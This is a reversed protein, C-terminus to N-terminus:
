RSMTRSHPRLPVPKPTHRIRSPSSTPAAAIGAANPVSAVISSKLVPVSPRSCRRRRPLRRKRTPLVRTRSLPRTTPSISHRSGSLSSSSRGSCASNAVTNCFIRSCISGCPAANECCSISLAAHTPQFSASSSGILSACRSPMRCSSSACLRSSLSSAIIPSNAKMRLVPVQSDPHVQTQQPLGALAAAVADRAADAGQPQTKWAGVLKFFTRHQLTQASGIWVPEDGRQTQVNLPARWLRLAYQEDSASGAHLMLLSEARTDFTAPLVPQQADPLRLNLLQLAQVWGANPQAHWGQAELAKRLTQLDGAYQVDLPWRQPNSLEGRQTPLQTWDWNWWTDLWAIAFTQPPDFRQLTAEASRPAHWLAALAFAAYFLWAMPKMWFAGQVRSRYAVGLILLWVAGLLAGGVVDSFWHAGFYLRAFGVAAVVLGALMYPWVRRRGPLERGILVAFFGFAVTAMTVQLSPFGFGKGALPPKPIDVLFGLAATLALGFALAAVWHGAALWRRRRLLYLLALACPPALM